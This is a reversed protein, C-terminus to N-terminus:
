RRNVARDGVWRDLRRCPYRRQIALLSQEVDCEGVLGLCGATRRASGDSGVDSPGCESIGLWRAADTGMSAPSHFNSTGALPYLLPNLFGLPHGAASNIVAAIGAWIPTTVSTGEFVNGTPCGGADAECISLGVGRDGPAVVDPVSRMPSTFFSSVGFGSQAGPPIESSEDLWTEGDYTYGPGFSVSSAGVATVHPSDTPIAITNPSGDSCGSGYDGTASFASIGSAAASALVEDVAQADAATTQDECYIFSNSIVNVGDEIMQNFIAEFGAGTGPSSGEYVVVQAGPAANLAADIGILVDSEGTTGPQLSAGSGVSVESVQNLLSAPLGDLALVDAVDSM